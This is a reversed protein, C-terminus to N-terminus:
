DRVSHVYSVEIVERLCSACVPKDLLLTRSPMTAFGSPEPVLECRFPRGAGPKAELHQVPWTPDNLFTLQPTTLYAMLTPSM